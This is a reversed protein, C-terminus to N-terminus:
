ESRLIRSILLDLISRSARKIFESNRFIKVMKPSIKYYTKIFLRGFWSADLKTDRFNRLFIVQPHDYSGYAMTAIYCGSSNPKINNNPYFSKVVDISEQTKQSIQVEDITYINLPNIFMSIDQLCKKINGINTSIHQIGTELLSESHINFTQTGLENRLNQISSRVLLPMNDVLWDLHGIIEISLLIGAHKKNIESTQQFQVSEKVKRIIESMKVPDTNGNKIENLTGALFKKLESDSRTENLFQTSRYSEINYESVISIIKTQKPTSSKITYLEKPKQDPPLWDFYIAVYYNYLHKILSIWEDSENPNLISLIDFAIIKDEINTKSKLLSFDKHDEIIRCKILRIFEMQISTMTSKGANRIRMSNDTGEWMILNFEHEPSINADLQMFRTALFSIAQAKAGLPVEKYNCTSCYDDLVNKYFYNENTYLKLDVDNAVEIKKTTPEPNHADYVKVKPIHIVGKEKLNWFCMATAKIDVAADHAEAFDSGFLKLHLESLSPWKYGYKGPLRCYDTASEMTCIKTKTELVNSFNKRLFEAGVIKEDFSMNHAVLLNASQVLSQFEDLVSQLPVGEALARMNSIGHIAAVESPISFGEPKIICSKGSIKEGDDDYVLWAIQVLRPWNNLDSVPAKWNKPLGTTETDFFVIM